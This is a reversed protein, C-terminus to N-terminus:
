EYDGQKVCSMKRLHKSDRIEVPHLLSPQSSVKRTKPLGCGYSHLYILVPYMSPTSGDKTM